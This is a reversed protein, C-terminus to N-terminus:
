PIETENNNLNTGFKNQGHSVGVWCHANDRSLSMFRIEVGHKGHLHRTTVKLVPGIKTNGQLWGESQSAEDERLLTYERCVVAHFQTVDGTDKTISYQGNEVVSMFGADM